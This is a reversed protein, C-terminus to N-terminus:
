SSLARHEETSLIDVVCGGREGVSTCLLREERREGREHVCSVSEEQSATGARNTAYVAQKKSEQERAPMAYALLQMGSCM